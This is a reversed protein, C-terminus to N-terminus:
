SFSRSCPRGFGQFGASPAGGAWIDRTIVGRSQLRGLLDAQSEQYSAYLGANAAARQALLEAFLRLKTLAANPEEAFLREAQTGLVALRDDHVALFAFNPSRAPPPV